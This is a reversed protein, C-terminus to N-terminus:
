SESVERELEWTKGLDSSRYIEGSLFCGVLLETGHATLLQACGEPLTAGTLLSWTSAGNETSILFAPDEDRRGEHVAIGRRSDFFIPHGIFKPRRVSQRRSQLRRQAEAVSLEGIYYGAAQNWTNGGDPSMRSLSRQDQSRTTLIGNRIQLSTANPVDTEEVAHSFLDMSFVKDRLALYFKDGEIAYSAGRIDQNVSFLDRDVVQLFNLRPTITALETWAEGFAPTSWVTVSEPQQMVAFIGTGEHKGVFMLRGSGSPPQSSAWNGGDEDRLLIENFETVVVDSSNIVTVQRLEADSPISDLRWEGSSNREVVVGLRSPFKMAGSAADIYPDAFVIQRNVANIYDERRSGDNADPEWGLPSNLNSMRASLEPAAESFEQLSLADSPTRITKFAYDEGSRNVYIAMVGLDTVKGPEVRFTGLEIDAPYFRSYYSEGFSYYARLSSLSYENAPVAAYFFRTSGSDSEAAVLRLFKTTDSENVDKPALTLQNAPYVAGFPTTDALQLLVVGESGDVFEFEDTAAPVMLIDSPMCSALFVCFTLAAIQRIKSKM